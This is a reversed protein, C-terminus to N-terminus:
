LAAAPRPLQGSGGGSWATMQRPLQGEDDARAPRLPLPVRGAAPAGDV